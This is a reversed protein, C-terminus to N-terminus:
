NDRKLGRMAIAIVVIIVVAVVLGILVNEVPPGGKADHRRSPFRRRRPGPCGGPHGTAASGSM